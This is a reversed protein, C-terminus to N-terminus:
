RASIREAKEIKALAKKAENRIRPDPNGLLVQLEPKAKSAKLKGLAFAAHSAVDDDHLLDILVEIARPDKMGGLAYALMERTRGHRRDRVVQVIDNLMSDDAVISLAYGIAWKEGGEFTELGRREGLSHDISLFAELLPRGAVPRAWRSTLTQAIGAKLGVWDTRALWKVLIPISRQYEGKSLRKLDGIGEIEYGAKRLEAIVPTASLVDRRLREQYVKAAEVGKRRLEKDSLIDDDWGPTAGSRRTRIQSIDM